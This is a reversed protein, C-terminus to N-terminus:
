QRHLQLFEVSEQARQKPHRCLLQKLPHMAHHPISRHFGALRDAQHGHTALGQQISTTLLHETFAQHVEDSVRDVM